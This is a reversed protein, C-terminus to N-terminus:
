KTILKKIKQLLIKENLSFSNKLFNKKILIVLDINQNLFQINNKIFNRLIMKVQRKILNKTVKKKIKKSVVIGFRLFRHNTKKNFFICAEQFNFRNGLKFIEQFEFNKRIFFFRLKKKTRIM